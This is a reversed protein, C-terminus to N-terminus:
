VDKITNLYKITLDIFHVLDQEKPIFVLDVLETFRSQPSVKMKAKVMVLAWMLELTVERALLVALDFSRSLDLSDSKIGPLLFRKKEVVLHETQYEKNKTVAIFVLEQAFRKLRAQVERLVEVVQEDDADYIVAISRVNQLNVYTKGGSEKAAYRRLQKYSIRELFNLHEM